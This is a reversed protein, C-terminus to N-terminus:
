EVVVSLDDTADTWWRYDVNQCNYYEYLTVTMTTNELPGAGVKQVNFAVNVTQGAALSSYSVFYGVVGDSTGILDNQLATTAGNITVTNYSLGTIVPFYIRGAELKQGQIGAIDIALRVNFKTSTYTENSTLDITNTDISYLHTDSDYAKITSSMSPTARQVLQAVAPQLTVVTDGTLSTTNTGPVVVQSLSPYYAETENTDSILMVYTGQDLTAQWVPSSYSASTISTDATIGSLPTAGNLYFKPSVGETVQIGAAPDNIKFNVTLGQTYTNVGGVPPPTQEVGVTSFQRGLYGGWDAFAFGCAIIAILIVVTATAIAKKNFLDM